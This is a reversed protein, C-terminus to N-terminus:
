RRIWRKVYLKEDYSGPKSTEGTECMISDECYKEPPHDFGFTHGAEHGAVHLKWARPERELTCTNLYIAGPQGAVRPPVFGYYRGRCDHVSHIVVSAPHKADAKRIQIGRNGYRDDLRNWKRMAEDIIQPYVHDPNSYYYREDQDVYEPGFVNRADASKSELMVILVALLVILLTALALALLGKKVAYKLGTKGERRRIQNM